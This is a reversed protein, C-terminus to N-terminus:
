PKSVKEPIKVHLQVGIRFWRGPQFASGADVYQTNMLNSVEAFIEFYRKQYRLTGDILWFPTYADAYYSNTETNFGIIDGMRDQYSIRWSAEVPGAVRHRVMMSFKNRLNNYKSVSDPVSKQNQQYLYSVSLSRFFGAPKGPRDLNLRANLELGTASYNSLNVPSYRNQEFSWLWDIIDRGQHRFWSATLFIGNWQYRLGGEFAVMRNPDLNLNGQNVPDRYFLDTFSPLHLARNVSAVFRLGPIIDYSADLGPFVAPKLPYATNWNVMIGGTFRFDGFSLIHEQFYSLNTRSYARTYFASDEGPVAVPNAIDYGINNSLINESRLDFGITSGLKRGQYSINLQSGFVDTLHFNQYFGPNDRELLFHDKRRRWYASPSIRVKDGTSVSISSFFLEAKEYQNPFRPSYFGAAGFQKHQYGSQFDLTSNEQNLSARYYLNQLKFDTNEIYGDSASRSLSLSNQLIGTKIRANLASRNYGYDGFVQSFQIDNSDGRRTVINIAGTFAGPGLIRAASGQLVEVREVHEFDIPLDLSLHGTQPDSLNIGNVMIMVHDFSGGRIGADSQVGMMGRQRIDVNSVFELLDQLSQVGAKHIDEIRIVAVIRSIESFVARSRQGIVEVEDLEVTKMITTLSDYQAHIVPLRNLLSYSLCLVGIKIVRSLSALIAFKKRSWRKFCIVAGTDFNKKYNVM